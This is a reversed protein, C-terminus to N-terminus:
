FISVWCFGILLDVGFVEVPAVVSVAVSAFTRVVILAATVVVRTGAVLVASFREWKCGLQNRMCEDDRSNSDVHSTAPFVTLISLTGVSLGICPNRLSTLRERKKVGRYWSGALSVQMEM